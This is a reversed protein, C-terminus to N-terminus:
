LTPCKGRPCIDGPSEGALVIGGEKVHHLVNGRGGGGHALLAILQLQFSAGVRMGSGLRGVVHAGSGLGLGGVVRTRVRVSWHAPFVSM